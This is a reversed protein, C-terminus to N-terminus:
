SPPEYEWLAHSSKRAYALSHAMQTTTYKIMPRVFYGGLPVGTGSGFLGPPPEEPMYTSWWSESWFLACYDPFVFEDVFLLSGQQMRPWLHVMCDHLSAQHDVDFFAMAIPESHDPLTDRFWGKRFECVNIEGHRRVHDRVRDLDSRLTGTYKDSSV